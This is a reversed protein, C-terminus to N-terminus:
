EVGSNEVCGLDLRGSTREFFVARSRRAYLARCCVRYRQADTYAAGEILM